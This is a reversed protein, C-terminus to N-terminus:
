ELIVLRLMEVYYTYTIHNSVVVKLSVEKKLFFLVFHHGVYDKM